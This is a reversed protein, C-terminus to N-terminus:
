IGERSERRQRLIEVVRSTRSATEVNPSLDV